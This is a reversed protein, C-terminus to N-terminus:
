ARSDEGKHSAADRDPGTDSRDEPPAEFQAEVARRAAEVAGDRKDRRKGRLAFFLILALLLILITPIM